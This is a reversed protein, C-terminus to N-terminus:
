KLGERAIRKPIASQFNWAILTQLDINRRANGNVSAQLNGMVTMAHVENTYACWYIKTGYVICYVKTGKPIIQKKYGRAGPIVGDHPLMFHKLQLDQAM